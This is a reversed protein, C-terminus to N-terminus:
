RRRRRLSATALLTALLSFGPANSCGTDGTKIDPNPVVVDVRDPESDNEGDTVVLDFRYTGATAVTFQPSDTDAKELGADPGSFQTWTFGLPDGDPDSSATGNLVVTDGINAMLPLGAEATPAGAFSSLILLLSLM